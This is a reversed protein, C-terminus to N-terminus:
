TAAGAHEDEVCPPPQAVPDAAEAVPEGALSEHGERRVQAAPLGGARDRLGLRQDLPEVVVRRDPAGGVAHRAQAGV